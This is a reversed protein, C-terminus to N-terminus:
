PMGGCSSILKFINFIPGLFLLCRGFWKPFHVSSSFINWLKLVLGVDLVGIMLLRSDLHSFGRVVIVGHLCKRVFYKIKNKVLLHCIKGVLRKLLLIEVRSLLM